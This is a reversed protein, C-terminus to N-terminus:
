QEHWELSVVEFSGCMGGNGVRFAGVGKLAGAQRLHDLFVDETIVDDLILFEARALWGPGAQPFTRTVRKGSGRVGDANVFIPYAELDEAKVNTPILQGGPMVGSTFHKTYTSKGKGPIQIGLHKAVDELCRKFAMGPICVMGDKVHARSRWTRKDYADAAEKKLRPEDHARSQLLPTIGRLNAIAIKTM